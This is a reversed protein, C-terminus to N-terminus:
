SMPTSACTASLDSVGVIPDPGPGDTGLPSGTRIVNASNGRRRADWVRAMGVAERLRRLEEPDPKAQNALAVIQVWSNREDSIADRENGFRSFLRAYSVKMELPFHAVVQGSNAIDWTSTQMNYMLPLRVPGAPRAGTGSAWADLADLQQRICSNQVDIAKLAKVNYTIERGLAQRTEAVEHRWRLWEVSQELALAILIGVVIVGIESLFEGWARVPKPKHLHMADGVAEDGPATDGEPEHEEAM